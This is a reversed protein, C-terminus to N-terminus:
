NEVYPKIFADFEEETKCTKSNRQNGDPFMKCDFMETSSAGPRIVLAYNGYEKKEVADYLHTNNMVTVPGTLDFSRWLLVFCKNLNSNYHNSYEYGERDKLNSLYYEFFSKAQTACKTQFDIDSVNKTTQKNFYFFGLAVVLVIIISTTIINQKIWKDM